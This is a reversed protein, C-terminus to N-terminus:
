RRGEELAEVRARLNDNEAKLEKIAGVAVSLIQNYDLNREDPFKDTKMATVANPIVKEVEQASFGITSPGDPNKKWKFSIPNLRDVLKLALKSDLTFEINKLREDSLIDVEGGVLLRAGTKISIPVAASGSIYGTTGTYTIYGYSSITTSTYTAVDLPYAPATTGIGVYGTTKAIVFRDAVGTEAITFDGSGLDSAYGVHFSVGDDTDTLKILTSAGSLHLLQEPATTGIGVYGGAKITVREQGSVGKEIFYLDGLNSCNGLSNKIQWGDTAIGVNAVALSAGCSADTRQALISGSAGYVTLPYTPVATGIGLNGMLYSDGTNSDEIVAFATKPAFTALAM